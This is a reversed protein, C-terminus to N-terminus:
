PGGQWFQEAAHWIRWQASDASLHRDLFGAYKDIFDQAEASSYPGELEFKKKVSQGPQLSIAYFVYQKENGTLIAPFGSDFIANKGLVTSSLTPKGQRPPADMVVIPSGPQDMIARLSKGAGGIPMAREGM